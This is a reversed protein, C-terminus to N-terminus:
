DSSFSIVISKLLSDPAAKSGPPKACCVFIFFVWFILALANTDLGDEVSIARYEKVEARFTL